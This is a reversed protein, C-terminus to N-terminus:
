YLDFTRSSKMEHEQIFRCPFSQPSLPVSMHISLLFHMGRPPSPLSDSSLSLSVPTPRHPPAFLCLDNLTAKGTEFFCARGDSLYHYDERVLFM